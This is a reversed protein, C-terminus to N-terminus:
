ALHSVLQAPREVLEGSPARYRYSHRPVTLYLKVLVRFSRGEYQLFELIEDKGLCAKQNKLIANLVFKAGSNVVDGYLTNDLQSWADVSYFGIMVEELSPFLQLGQLEDLCTTTPIHLVDYDISPWLM